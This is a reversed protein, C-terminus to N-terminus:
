LDETSTAGWLADDPEVELSGCDSCTWEGTVNWSTWLDVDPSGCWACRRELPVNM